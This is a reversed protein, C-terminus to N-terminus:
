QKNKKENPSNSSQSIKLRVAKIFSSKEMGSLDGLDIERDLPVFSNQTLEYGTFVTYNASKKDNTLFLLYTSGVQPLDKGSIRYLVKQGNPYRVYGGERDVTLCSGKVTDNSGNGRLLLDDICVTFETYVSRKDTSLFANATTIQGIIILDSATAPVADPIPVEDYRGVMGDAPDPTGIVWHQGNYRESKIRREERAKESGMTSGIADYDVIAYKSLDDQRPTAPPNKQQSHSDLTGLTVAITTLVVM